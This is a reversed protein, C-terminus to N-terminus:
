ESAFKYTCTKVEFYIKKIKNKILCIKFIKISFRAQEKRENKVFRRTIAISSTM